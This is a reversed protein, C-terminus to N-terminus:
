LAPTSYKYKTRKMHFTQMVIGGIFMPWVYQM